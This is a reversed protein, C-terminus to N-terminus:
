DGNRRGKLWKVGLYCFPTHAVIVLIKLTLYPVILTALYATTFKPSTNLIKPLGPVYYLAIFMFVTTDIIQSVISSANNRLWLWRGGTRSRWFAFAWVDHLSSLLFATLSAVFFRLSMGFVPDYQEAQVYSRPAFPLWVSLATVLSVFLVCVFTIWVFQNAKERGHVEQVIDTILFTLPYTFIGVSTEVFGIKTIKSGLLNAAVVAAAFLGLLLNTRDELTLKKM